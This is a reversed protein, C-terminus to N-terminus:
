SMRREMQIMCSNGNLPVVRRMCRKRCCTELQYTEGGVSVQTQAILNLPAMGLGVKTGTKASLAMLIAQLTQAMQQEATPISILTDLISNVERPNGDADRFYCGVISYSGDSQALVKFQGPNGSVNYDSVIKELVQEEGSGLSLGASDPYTSQFSGGAPITVRKAGAPHAALWNPDLEDPPITSVVDPGSLFPPDEYNVAWVTSARSGM